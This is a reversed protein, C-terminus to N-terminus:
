KVRKLYSECRLQIVVVLLLPVAHQTKAMLPSTKVASRRSTPASEASVRCITPSYRRRIDHSSHYRYFSQTAKSTYTYSYSYDSM